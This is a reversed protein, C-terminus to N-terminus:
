DVGCVVQTGEGFVHAVVAFGEAPIVRWPAAGLQAGFQICGVGAEVTEGAVFQAINKIRFFDVVFIERPSM